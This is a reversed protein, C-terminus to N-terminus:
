RILIKQNYKGNDHAVNIIYAGEPLNTSFSGDNITQTLISRGTIDFVHLVSHQPLDQAYLTNGIAYILINEKALQNVGVGVVNKHGMINTNNFKVQYPWQEDNSDDDDWAHRSFIRPAGSVVLWLNKCNEPTEFHLTDTSAHYTASGIDSYVRTGDTTLAVFGFRWGANTILKKRYGDIGAKGDFFVSVRTSNKLTPNLKIINHGYDEPCVSSDILWYDDGVNNVKPQPRSNIYNAGRQKIHPIDWTAFRAACEWMEDNFQDQTLKGALRKYAEIPDEPKKSELWLRGIFKMDDQKFCWYDQLFYNEYRPTEHLPHKHVRSLYGNYWENNFQHDPMIKYAQWQACNEWYVNGGSANSGFGYTWGHGSDNGAQGQFCHGIEHRLTQWSRSTIAGGSSFTCMSTVGDVGGGNAEWDTKALLRIIMKYRDSKSNGRVIFGLSDAYFDFAEDAVRLVDDLNVGPNNGLDKEWFVVWHKSQKSRELSYNNNANNVDGLAWGPIYLEKDVTKVLQNLQTAAQTLATTTLDFNNSTLVAEDRASLLNSIKDPEDAYWTLIQNAYDIASQLNTYLKISAEVQNFVAELTIKAAILDEASLPDENLAQEANEITNELAERSSNQIKQSLLKQAHTIQSGVLGALDATAYMGLYELQFNDCTLWNGTANEAKLGITIQEDVVIFDMTREQINNIEATYYGAFFWVGTQPNGRNTTSGSGTQQINGAKVSLRYKGNDINKITQQISVDPIKQGINVWKEVYTTGVKPFVTNTQTALGNNEWGDFGSEFSPNVILHTMDIPQDESVKLLVQSTAATLYQTQILFFALSITFFTRLTKHM